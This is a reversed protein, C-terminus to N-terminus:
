YQYVLFKYENLPYLLIGKSSFPTRGSYGVPILYGSLLCKWISWDGHTVNLRNLVCCQHLKVSFPKNRLVGLLDVGDTMRLTVYIVFHHIQWGLM